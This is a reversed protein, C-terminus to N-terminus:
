AFIHRLPEENEKLWQIIDEIIVEVSREPSWNFAASAKSHDSIYWPIDVAPSAAVEEIETKKGLSQRCLSTFELLSTSVEFGGGV